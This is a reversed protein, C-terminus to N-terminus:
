RAAGTARFHESTEFQGDNDRDTQLTWAKQRRDFSLRYRPQNATPESILPRDIEGIATLLANQPPRRDAPADSFRQGLAFSAVGALVVFAIPRWSIPEGSGSGYFRFTDLLTPRDQADENLYQRVHGAADQALEGPVRILYQTYSRHSAADFDEFQHIRAEMGLGILEDCIFGAEALNAVRAVNVLDIADASQAVVAM